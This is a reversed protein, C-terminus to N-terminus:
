SRKGVAVGLAHEPCPHVHPAPEPHYACGCPATWERHTKGDRVNTRWTLNLNRIEEAEGRGHVIPDCRRIIAAEATAKSGLRGIVDALEDADLRSSAPALMIAGRLLADALTELHEEKM